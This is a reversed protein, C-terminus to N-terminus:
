LQRDLLEGLMADPDIGAAEGEFNLLLRHRLVPLASADLDERAVHARGTRLARVKAALVLAQAGRPSAGFRVYRRIRESPTNEPHTALVLRVAHERVAHAIPVARVLARLELIRTRDLVAEVKAPARDTTLELIRHLEAASPYSIRLKMAFRDLQAEPLPYTGEMELPNQTALVLFPDELRHTTRGVSVTKEQMAELLASQTKPTARNIEDALVVHAFIPGPRFVLTRSGHSDEQLVHTGVIDGPMLDPTFQIRAFDLAVADALAHVLHTKGLGPIGELLAHGDILLCTVLADVIETQGVVVKAVEDRVRELTEQVETLTQEADRIV